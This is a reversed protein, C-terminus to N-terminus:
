VSNWRTRNIIRTIQTLGVGYEEALQKKPVGGAGKERIELVHQLKLKALSHLEGGPQGKRDGERGRDFMDRMNDLQTGLYLHDPNCCCRVDCHHLVYKGEPIDGNHRKWTWRHILYEGDVSCIGYGNKNLSGM